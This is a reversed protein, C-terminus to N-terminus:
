IEEVLHAYRALIERAYEVLDEPRQGSPQFTIWLELNEPRNDGRNGNKHHVSEGRLLPRGLMEQMVMRHQYMWGSGNSGRGSSARGKPTWPRRMYGREDPQWEDPAWERSAKRPKVPVLPDPHRVLQRYHASCYGRSMHPRDCGDFKCDPKRKGGVPPHLEQGRMLQKYHINCLGKADHPRDCGEFDCGRGVLTPLQHVTATQM